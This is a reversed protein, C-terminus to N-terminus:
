ITNGDFFLIFGSPSYTFALLNTSGFSRNEKIGTKKTELCRKDINYLNSTCFFPVCVCVCM